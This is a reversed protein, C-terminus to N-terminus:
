YLKNLNYHKKVYAFFFAVGLANMVFATWFAAYYDCLEVAIGGVLVGLGVGLDWSTLFSANATGRRNHPAINVFMNQVAPMMHGNGLGLLVANAFVGFFNHFSAFCLYGLVSISMGIAANHIVRGQRLSKGGTLRSLMLCVSLVLFYAGAGKTLGLQEKAYIAIYTSIVGYPFALAALMLGVSWSKVLFFRDLRMISRQNLPNLPNLDSRQPLTKKPFRVTYNIFVGLAAMFFSLLFIIQFNGVAEYLFLGITPSIATGLNNALGYYGIGEARRVSPLVDIAVTSNAVTTTGFPAGHMTRVIAFLIMSGGILYGLFFCAFLGYSLLLVTRRNFTDVIYGSFLRAFLATVTYGSLVVGITHKGAGFEETMYLPLLPMVLMFSFFIMFNATWVKTYNANWLKPLATHEKDLLM